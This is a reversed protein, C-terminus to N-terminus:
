FFQELGLLYFFFGSLRLDLFAVELILDKSFFGSLFPFGMLSFSSFFFMLYYFAIFWIFCWVVCIRNM